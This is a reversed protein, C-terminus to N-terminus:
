NSHILFLGELYTKIKLITQIEQIHMHIEPDAQRNRCFLWSPIKLSKM